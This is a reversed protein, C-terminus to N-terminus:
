CGNARELDRFCRVIKLRARHRRVRVTQPNIAARAVRPAAMPRLLLRRDGDRLTALFGDLQALRRRQELLDLATPRADPLEALEGADLGVM